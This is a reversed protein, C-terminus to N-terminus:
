TQERRKRFYPLLWWFVGILLAVSAATMIGLRRGFVESVVLATAAAVALSLTALGFLIIRTAFLKFRVRDKLPREIRHMAAPASFLVLSSVSCIFTALYIWKEDQRIKSFGQNFPLLILFATLVQAAPLLIRLEEHMDSLSNVDHEGEVPEQRFQQPQQPDAVKM